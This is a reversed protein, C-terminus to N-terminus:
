SFDTEKIRALIADADAETIKGKAIRKQFGKKIGSIGREVFEDKIDRIIVEVGKSAFAQAWQEQV